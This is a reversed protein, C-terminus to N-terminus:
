KAGTLPLYFSWLSWFFDNVRKFHSLVRSLNDVSEHEFDRFEPSEQLRERFNMLGPFVEFSGPWYCFFCIVKIMENILDVSPLDEPCFTEGEKDNEMKMESMFQVLHGGLYKVSSLEFEILQIRPTPSEFLM